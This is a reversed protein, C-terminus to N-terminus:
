PKPEEVNHELTDVHFEDRESKAGAFWKCAVRNRLPFFEQVSMKPGGSKLKVIDGPKFAPVAAKAAKTVM